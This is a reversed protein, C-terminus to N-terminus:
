GGGEGRTFLLQVLYLGAKVHIAQRGRQCSCLPARSREAGM